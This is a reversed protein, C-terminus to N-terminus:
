RGAREKRVYYLMLVIWASNATVIGLGGAFSCWQDLHPYYYLNWLGWSAFFATAPISVGRVAKDRLLKLIHLLVFLGGLSEYAGNMVDQWNM